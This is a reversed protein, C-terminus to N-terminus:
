EHEVGHTFKGDFAQHLRQLAQVTLIINQNFQDWPSSRDVIDQIQQATLTKPETIM